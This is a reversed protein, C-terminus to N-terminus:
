DLADLQAQEQEEITKFGGQEISTLTGIVDKKITVGVAVSQRLGEKFIFSTPYMGPEFILDPSGFEVDVKFFKWEPLETSISDLTEEFHECSPCGDTTWCIYVLGGEKVKSEAELKTVEIM